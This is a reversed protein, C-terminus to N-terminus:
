GGAKLILPIYIRPSNYEDAGIDPNADRKDNDFDHKVGSDFGQDIADSGARLHYTNNLKATGTITETDVFVPSGGIAVQQTSVDELLTKTYQVRVTGAGAQYATFAGNFSKLLTNALDVTLGDGDGNDGWALLFSEAKNDAATVFQLNVDLIDTNGVYLVNALANDNNSYSNDFILNSLNATVSRDNGQQVLYMSTGNVNAQNNSFRVRDMVLADGGYTLHARLGGGTNVAQNNNFYSTFISIPQDPQFIYAGGGADTSTNGIFVTDSIVVTRGNQISLGGGYGNGGSVTNSIISSGTIMSGDLVDWLYVGGGQGNKNASPTSAFNDTIISDELKVIVSKALLGGGCDQGTGSCGQGSVGDPNGLGSYDGGTITLGIVTVAQNGDGLITVGRGSRNADIISPYANRNEPIDWNGDKYGGSLTLSKDIFAVQTYTYSDSATITQTNTYTGEAILVEGGELTNNIAHQLDCYPDLWTGSGVQPCTDDNVYVDLASTVEIDTDPSAWVVVIGLFIIGITILLQILLKIGTTKSTRM